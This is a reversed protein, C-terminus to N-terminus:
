TFPIQLCKTCLSQSPSRPPPDKWCLFMTLELLNPYASSWDSIFSKHWGGNEPSPFHYTGVHHWGFHYTSVHHWGFNCMTGVLIICTWTTGMLIIGSWTTCMRIDFNELNNVPDNYHFINQQRPNSESHNSLQWQATLFHFFNPSHIFCNNIPLWLLNM